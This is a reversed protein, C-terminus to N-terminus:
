PGDVSDSWSFFCSIIFLRRAAISFIIRSIAVNHLVMLLLIRLIEHTPIPPRELPTRPRELPTRPRELPAHPRELPAHPRNHDIKKMSVSYNIHCSFLERGQLLVYLLLVIHLFVVFYVDPFRPDTSQTRDVRLAVWIARTDLTHQTTHGTHTNHQPYTPVTCEGLFSPVTSNATLVLLCVCFLSLVHRVDGNM